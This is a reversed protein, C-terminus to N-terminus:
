KYGSVTLRDLNEPLSLARLRDTSTRTSTVSLGTSSFALLGAAPSGIRNPLDFEARSTRECTLETSYWTLLGDNSSSTFIASGTSGTSLACTSNM